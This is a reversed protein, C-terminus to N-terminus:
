GDPDAHAQGHLAGPKPDRLGDGHNEVYASCWRTKLDGAKQPFQRRTAIKGDEGGASQLGDPTEFLYGATKANEKLLEGEYGGVKWSFYIRVGFAAAVAACYARTCPWDM